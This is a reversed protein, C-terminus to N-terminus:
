DLQGTAGKTKSVLWSRPAVAAKGAFESRLYELVITQLGRWNRDRM